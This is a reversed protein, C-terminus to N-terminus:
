PKGTAKERDSIMTELDVCEDLTKAKLVMALIEKQWPKGAIREQLRYKAQGIGEGQTTGAAGSDDGPERQQHQEEADEAAAPKKAVPKADIPKQQCKPYGLCGWFPGRPAKGPRLVMTKGCTPCKPADGFEVDGAGLRSDQTGYGRGRACHASTKGKGQNKWVEDLLRVSVSGLGTLRRVIGGNLNAFSAKRVEVEKQIGKKYKVFDEDSRRVGEVNYVKIPAAFLNCVGDGTTTWAFDDSDDAKIRARVFDAHGQPPRVEIKWMGMIRQCGVDQLFATVRGEEGDQAPRRFLVWDEPETQMISASRIMALLDGLNEFYEGEMRQALSEITVRQLEEERIVPLIEGTQLDVNEEVQQATENAM